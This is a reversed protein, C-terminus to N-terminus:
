GLVRPLKIQGDKVSGANRLADRADLPKEPEDKRLGAAKVPFPYVMPEYDDIGPIKRILEMQRLTIQFESMLTDYQEESMDFLLLNAAERLLEKGIKQM